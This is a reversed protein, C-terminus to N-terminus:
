QLYVIAKKWKHVIDTKPTPLIQSNLWFLSFYQLLEIVTDFDNYDKYIIRM